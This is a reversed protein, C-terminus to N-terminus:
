EEVVPIYMTFTTGIGVQSEVKIEGGHKKIIDYSISLGLGTGKGIEKTTYFPDFIKTLSEPSIGSGTDGISIFINGNEVWTKVRIVGKLEIAQAANVLLNMFVQNLQGPNCKTLPIDGLEKVLTAKYKIENWIIHMTSEIGENINALMSENTMRAFGKLGQVINKVRDAGDLTENILDGTDDIIYSIKFVKKAEAIENFLPETKENVSEELCIKTLESIAEEQVKLFKAMKNMYGRLSDLNSIIFGIPNNIEHAVGAALQGISAMKEQQIVQSQANELESYAQELEQNKQALEEETRKREAIENQFVENIAILEQNISFLEQTREEVKIELYSQAHRLEEEVKKIQTIDHWVYIICPEGAIESAEASMLGTRLEGTRGRWIIEYNYVAGKTELIEYIKEAEGVNNWLGIEASTFGIIEQREYGFFRVFADNVEIYRRDSSRVIGIVDAVHCFAKFFKEESLALANQVLQGNKIEIELKENKITLEQMMHYMNETMTNFKRALGGIEDDYNIELRKTLNGRAIEETGESLEYIPKTVMNSIFTILLWLLFAMGSISIMTTIIEKRLAVKGQDTSFGLTAIGIVVNNKIIEKEVYILERDLDQHSESYKKYIERGRNTRVIVVCIEPDRLLADGIATMGEDNYNWLSDSLSLAVLKTTLDSKIEMDNKINEATNKIRIMGSLSMIFIVVALVSFAFRKKITM